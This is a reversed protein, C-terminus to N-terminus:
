HYWENFYNEFGNKMINNRNFFGIYVNYERNIIKLGFRSDYYTNFGEEKLNYVLNVYLQYGNIFIKDM